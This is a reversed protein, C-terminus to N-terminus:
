AGRRRAMWGAVGGACLVSLAAGVAFTAQPGYSDWLLGAAVNGVLAILGSILSFLGFASGRLHAPAADAILTMLLGQSFGMHLGWLAVGSYYAIQGTSVALVVDAAALFALSLLLLSGRGIRDSLAGVPFAALGFVIHLLIIAAPAYSEPVGVDLGKMVLFAESFRALGIVATLVIMSWTATDLKLAGKLSPPAKGAEDGRPPDSVGLVLLAIAFFAPISALWFVQKINGALLAMLGIALLPGVFGGVTDLSKRLGYARGRIEKPTVAAVLADRPATRIGKGIRDVGKAILVGEVSAALPFIPKSLAALGYGAVALWKPRSVRDSVFGAGFKVATAVAVSFGEVLGILAASAGLSVVMYIPLLAQIMESSVDMLLSVVGLVWVTRPVSIRSM